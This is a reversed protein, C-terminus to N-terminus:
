KNPAMWFNGNVRYPYLFQAANKELREWKCPSYVKPLGLYISHFFFFSETSHVSQRYLPPTHNLRPCLGIILTIAGWRDLGIWETTPVVNWGKQPLSPPSPTTMGKYLKFAEVVYSKLKKPLDTNQMTNLEIKSHIQQTKHM